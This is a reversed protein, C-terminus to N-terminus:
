VVIILYSDMVELPIGLGQHRRLRTKHIRSFVLITVNSTKQLRIVSLTHGYRFLSMRNRYDLGLFVDQYRIYLVLTDTKLTCLVTLLENCCVPTSSTGLTTIVTEQGIAVLYLRRKDVVERLEIQATAGVIEISEGHDSCEEM